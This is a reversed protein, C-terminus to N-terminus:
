RQVTTLVLRIVEVSRPVIPGAESAWTRETRPSRSSMGQGHPRRVKHSVVVPEGLLDAFGGVLVGELGDARRGGGSDVVDQRDKGLLERAGDEIHLEEALPARGLVQSAQLPVRERASQEGLVAFSRGLVTLRDTPPSAGSWM